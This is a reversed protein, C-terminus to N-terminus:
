RSLSASTIQCRLLLGGPSLHGKFNEWCKHWDKTVPDFKYLFNCQATQNGMVYLYGGHAIVSLPLFRMELAPVLPQWEPLDESLDIVWMPNAGIENSRRSIVYLVSGLIAAVAAVPM